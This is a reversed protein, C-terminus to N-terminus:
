EVELGILILFRARAQALEVHHSARSLRAARLDTERDVFEASTVVGETFRLRTERLVDDRLAVIASDSALSEELRRITAIERVARRRIEDSFAAEETALIEQQIAIGQRELRSRGWDFPSWELQLGALWYGTFRDGLPNLGPRGLGARGVASLRPWDRRGVASREAELMERTRAFGAYEPRRRVADLGALADAVRGALDPEALPRAGPISEGTLDALVALTASRDAAIGARAQRRRLREAEIVAVASPLAEGAEVRQGALRLQADLEALGADLEAGHADLLLVAFYTDAVIQRLAFLRSRVGAQSEALRAREVARRAGIAPDLLPQRIGVYADYTDHHPAFPAADGPLAFPISVVDSQYQARAVADLRPLWDTRLARLRAASQGALLEVQRGRPDRAVAATQLAGLRLTDAPGTAQAASVPRSIALCLAGALLAPAPRRLTM